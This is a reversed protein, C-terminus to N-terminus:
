LNVALLVCSLISIFLVIRKTAEAKRLINSQKM